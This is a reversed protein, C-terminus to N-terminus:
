NGHGPKDTPAHAAAHAAHRDALNAAMVEGAPRKMVQIQWLMDLASRLNPLFDGLTTTMAAAVAVLIGGAAYARDAAAILEEPPSDSGWDTRGGQIYENCLKEVTLCLEIEKEKM